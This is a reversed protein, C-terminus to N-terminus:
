STARRNWIAVAGDYDVAAVQPAVACSSETCIITVDHTVTNDVEIIPVTGCFPCPLPSPGPLPVDGWGGIASQLEEVAKSYLKVSPHDWSNGTFGPDDEAVRDRVAYIADGLNHLANITRISAIIQTANDEASM